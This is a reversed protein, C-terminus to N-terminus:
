VQQEESSVEIETETQMDTQNAPSSIGHCSAPCHNASRCSVFSPSILLDSLRAPTLMYIM